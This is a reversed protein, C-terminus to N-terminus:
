ATVRDPDLRLAKRAHGLLAGSPTRDLGCCAYGASRKAKACGYSPSHRANAVVLPRRRAHHAPMISLSRLREGMRARQILFDVVPLMAPGSAGAERARRFPGAGGIAPVGNIQYASM